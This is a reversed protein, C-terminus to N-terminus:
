LKHSVTDSRSLVLNFFAFCKYTGGGRGFSHPLGVYRSQRIQSLDMVCDVLQPMVQLLLSLLNSLPFSHSTSLAVNLHEQGALSIAHGASVM